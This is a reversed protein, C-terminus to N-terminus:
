SKKRSTKLIIINSYTMLIFCLLNYSFLVVVLVYSQARSFSFSAWYESSTFVLTGLMICSIIMEIFFILNRCDGLRCQLQGVCDDDLGNTYETQSNTCLLKNQYGASDCPYVQDNRILATCTEHNTWNKYTHSPQAWTLCTLIWLLLNAFLLCYFLLEFQFAKKRFRFICTTQSFEKLALIHKYIQSSTPSAVLRSRSHASFCLLVSVFPAFTLSSTMLSSKRDASSQIRTTHHQRLFFQEHHWNSLNNSLASFYVTTLSQITYVYLHSSRWFITKWTQIEGFNFSAVRTYHTYFTKSIELKSLDGARM